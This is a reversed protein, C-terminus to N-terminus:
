LFLDPDISSLSNGYRPDGFSRKWKNARATWQRNYEKKTIKRVAPRRNINPIKDMWYQERPLREYEDTEELVIFSYNNNKLIKSASVQKGSKHNRIRQELNICSGIYVDGNTNDLLKYYIMKYIYPHNIRLYWGSGYGGM